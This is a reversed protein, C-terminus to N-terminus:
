SAARRRRRRGETVQRQGRRAAEIAEEEEPTLHHESRGDALAKAYARTETRGNIASIVVGNGREDLLAASFSLAGGMDSFADYRVVAVRSISGRLLGRLHETNEHVVGLDERLAEVDGRYRELIGFLDDGGESGLVAEYSSRLGRIRASLLVVAITLGVVIVALGLLLWTIVEGPLPVPV